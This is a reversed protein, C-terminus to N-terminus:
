NKILHYRVFSWDLPMHKPDLRSGWEIVVLCRKNEFLDWFGTHDLEISSEIRYLDLHEVSDFLRHRINYSHHLAFTPSAGGQISNELTMARLIMEVSTTKGAGLDGDLWLVTQSNQLYSIEHKWYNELDLLSNFIQKESILSDITSFKDISYQNKV